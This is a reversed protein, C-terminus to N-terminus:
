LIKISNSLSIQLFELANQFRTQGATRTCPCTINFAPLVAHHKVVPKFIASEDCRHVEGLFNLRAYLQFHTYEFSPNSVFDPRVLIYTGM